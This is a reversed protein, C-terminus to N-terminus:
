LYSMVGVPAFLVRADELVIIIISRKRGPNVSPSPFQNILKPSSNLGDFKSSLDKRPVELDGLGSFDELDSSYVGYFFSRLPDDMGHAGEISREKGARAEELMSETYSPSGLIKIVSPAENPAYVADQSTECGTEEDIERTQLLGAEHIEEEITAHEEPPTSGHAM